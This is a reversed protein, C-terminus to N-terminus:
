EAKSQLREINAEAASALDPPPNQTLVQRFYALAQTLDSTQVCIEGLRFTVEYLGPNLTLCKEFIRKAESAQGTQFYAEGLYDFSRADSQDLRTAALLPGIAKAPEKQLLLIFGLNRQAAKNSPEIEVAKVFQDQAEKLRESRTYLIGLANYAHHYKPYDSIARRLQKEAKGPENKKLYRLGEQFAKRAKEPIRLTEVDVVPACQSPVPEDGASQGLVVSVLSLSGLGDAEILDSSPRRGPANVTVVYVGDPVDEFYFSAGSCTTTELVGPGSLTVTIADPLQTEGGPPIVTGRIIRGAAALNYGFVIPLALCLLITRRSFRM